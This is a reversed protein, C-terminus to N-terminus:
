TIKGCHFTWDGPYVTPLFRTDFIISKYPARLEELARGAIDKLIGLIEGNNMVNNLECMNYLIGGQSTKPWISEPAVYQQLSQGTPEKQIMNMGIMINLIGLKGIEVLDDWLRGGGGLEPGVCPIGELGAQISLSGLMHAKTNVGGLVPVGQGFFRYLKRIKDGVIRDTEPTGRAHIYKAMFAKGGEHLDIVFDSEKILNNWLESVVRETLLGKEDGPWVRNMNLNEYGTDPPTIRSAVNFAMPNSVPVAIVSGSVEKPNLSAILRNIIEMGSFEDGHQLALLAMRPGDNIGRLAHLTIQIPTGDPYSAVLVKYTIKEGKQIEKNFVKM